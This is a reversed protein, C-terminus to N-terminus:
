LFREEVSQAHGDLGEETALTIVTDKLKRLGKKTIKQVSTTKLFERVSLPSSFRSTGSTPLVHNGGSAYDGAAVPAHAGLFIAGANTIRKEIKEPTKTMIELHEAGYINAFEIQQKESKIEILTINKMSKSLINQRELTKVQTKIWKSVQNITKESTSALISQADPDHEAQALLDSAILRPDSSSDALILVESPGAPMDIDVKGYCLNKAATVYKNGPGVIKSVPSITKTGYALAAVAQAGGVRYVEDVGCIKCACLVLDSIPPPSVVVIRKVCAVKAPIATMLVSSPYSALGGPVYCGVSDIPLTKEGVTVGEEIKVSWRNQIKSFQQSHFKQINRHAHKLSKILTPNCQKFAKNIEGKTIRINNKTLSFKDFKKTYSILAVDGKTRVASIIPAVISAVASYDESGRDILKSISKKDKLYSIKRM